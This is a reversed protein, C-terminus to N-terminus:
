GRFLRDNQYAKSGDIRLAMILTSAGNPLISETFSTAWKWKSITNFTVIIKLLDRFKENVYNEKSIQLSDYCKEIDCQIGHIERQHNQFLNM